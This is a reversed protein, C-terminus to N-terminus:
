PIVRRPAAGNAIVLTYRNPKEPPCRSGISTIPETVSVPEGALVVVPPEITMRLIQIAKM